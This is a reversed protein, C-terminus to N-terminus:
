PIVAVVRKDQEEGMIDALVFWDLVDSDQAQFLETKVKAESSLQTM